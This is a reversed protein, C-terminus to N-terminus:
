TTSDLELSSPAEDTEQAAPKTGQPVMTAAADSDVITLAM